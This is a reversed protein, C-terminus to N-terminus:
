LIGAKELIPLVYSVLLRRRKSKESYFENKVDEHDTLLLDMMEDNLMRVNIVGKNSKGSSVVYCVLQDAQSNAAGIIAGGVAGFAVGGAGLAAHVKGIDKKNVFLLRSRGIKKTPAYGSGFRVNSYVLNRCNVYLIGNQKVLFANKKLIKDTAKDDTSFKYSNGGWWWLQSNDPGEKYITDLPIWNDKMFDEYSNCYACQASMTNANFLLAVCFLLRIIKSKM